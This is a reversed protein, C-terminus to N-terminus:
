RMGDKFYPHSIFVGIGMKSLSLSAIQGLDHLLYTSSSLHSGLDRFDTNKVM